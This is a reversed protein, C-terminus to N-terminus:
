FRTRASVRTTPSQFAPLQSGGSWISLKLNELKVQRGLTKTLRSELLPRFQNADFLLPLAVVILAAVVVLAGVAILARKM